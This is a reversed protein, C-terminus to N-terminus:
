RGAALAAARRSRGARRASSTGSGSGSLATLAAANGALWAAVVAEWQDPASNWLRAHRGGPFLVLRVRGAPESAAFARATELPAVRDADGQLLLVPVRDGTGDDRSQRPPDSSPQARQLAREIRNVRGRRVGSLVSAASDAVGSPLGPAALNVAARVHDLVPSDLVVGTLVSGLRSRAATTLVISGGASFGMLVIERAGEELAHLMASEVDVWEGDELGYHAGEDPPAEGDGRYAPLLVSWGAAHFAPVARLTEQRVSRRGHVLVAWRTGDGGPVIWAPVAGQTTQVKVERFPLGLHAPTLHFWGNFRGSTAAALDGVDVGLLEREVSGGEKALVDGIRAHGRGDDFWFSWRGPLVAPPTARFRIRNAALDVGLVETPPETRPGVARRAALAGSVLAVGALGAAAVGRALAVRAAGGTRAM